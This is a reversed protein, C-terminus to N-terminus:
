SVRIFVMGFSETRAAKISARGAAAVSRSAAMRALKRGAVSSDITLLRRSSCVVGAPKNLLLLLPAAAAQLPRGDVAIADCGPDARDGLLATVLAQWRDLLAQKRRGAPEPQPRMLEAIVNTDLVIV